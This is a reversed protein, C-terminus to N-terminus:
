STLRGGITTLWYLGGAGESMKNGNCGQQACLRQLPLNDIACRLSTLATFFFSQKRYRSLVDQSFIVKPCFTWLRFTQLVFCWWFLFNGWPCFMRPVFTGSIFSGWSCFSGPVNLYIVTCCLMCFWINVFVFFYQGLILTPKQMLRVRWRCLWIQSRWSLHYEWTLLIWLSPWMCTIKPLNEETNFM